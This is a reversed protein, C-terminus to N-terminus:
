REVAGFIANRVQRQNQTPQIAPIASVIQGELGHSAFNPERFGGQVCAVVANPIRKKGTADPRRAV